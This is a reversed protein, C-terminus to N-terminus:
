FDVKFKSPIKKQFLLMRSICIIKESVIKNNLLPDPKLQLGAYINWHMCFVKLLRMEKDRM